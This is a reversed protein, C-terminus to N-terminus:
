RIWSSSFSTQIDLDRIPCLGRGTRVREVRFVVAERHIDAVRDCRPVHRYRTNGADMKANITSM